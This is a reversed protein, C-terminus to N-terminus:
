ILKCIPRLNYSYTKPVSFNIRFFCHIKTAHKIRRLYRLDFVKVFCTFSERYIGHLINTSKDGSIIFRRIVQLHDSPKVRRDASCVLPLLETPPQSPGLTPIDRQHSSVGGVVAPFLGKLGGNWLKAV